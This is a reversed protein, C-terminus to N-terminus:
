YSRSNKRDGVVFQPGDQGQTRSEAINFVKSEAFDLLANADRGEPQFGAEAISQAAQIVDRAIARERIIEAYATVNSVSPTNKAIQALYHFDGIDKLEQTQELSESVTILDLPRAQDALRQMARFILQHARTYFDEAVLIEAVRDWANADLMLGGLVSQETEHAHPPLKIDVPKKDTMNQPPTNKYM